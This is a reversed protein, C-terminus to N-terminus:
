KLRQEYVKGHFTDTDHKGRLVRYKRGDTVAVPQNNDLGRITNHGILNLVANNYNSDNLGTYQQEPTNAVLTSGGYQAVTSSGTNNYAVVNNFDVTNDGFHELLRKFPLQQQIAPDKKAKEWDEKTMNGKRTDYIGQKYMMYRLSNLDSYQENPQFDHNGHVNDRQFMSLNPYMDHLSGNMFRNYIAEGKDRTQPDSWSDIINKEDAPDLQRITHSYEHPLVANFLDVGYKNAQTTNLLVNTNKPVSFNGIHRYTTVDNHDFAQSGARPDSGKIVLPNYQKQGVSFYKMADDYQEQTHNHMFRNKFQEGSTYSNLFGIPGESNDVQGGTQMKPVEGGYRSLKFIFTSLQEM